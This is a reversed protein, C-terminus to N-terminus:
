QSGPAPEEAPRLTVEPPRVWYTVRNGLHNENVLEVLRELTVTTERKPLDGSWAAYVTFVSALAGFGKMVEALSKRTEETFIHHDGKESANEALGDHVGKIQFDAIGGILPISRRPKAELLGAKPLQQSISKLRAQDAGPLKIIIELSM